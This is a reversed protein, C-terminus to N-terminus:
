VRYESGYIVRQLLDFVPYTIESIISAGLNGGIFIVLILIMFGYRELPALVPTWFNPLIGMLIKSGDLPPVPIMNFAALGLNVYVFVLLYLDLQGLDAGSQRAARLPVAACAAMVVNSLPGALAVIAMGGRRGGLGGRLRNPNVPVPKGWAFAPYGLAILVFGLFGIPDFHAVPNLTIRGLHRATDDGLRWATWAHMFEHVTIAVVFTLMTAIIRDPDQQAVGPM